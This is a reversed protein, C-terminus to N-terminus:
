NTKHFGFIFQNTFEGNSTKVVSKHDKFFYEQLIFSPRNKVTQLLLKVLNLHEFDIFLTNDGEVLVIKDPINRDERFKKIESKLSSENNLHKHLSRLEAKDIRWQAPSLIVNKYRVRPFSKFIQILPGWNFSLSGTKNQYQLDCLFHYIPLSNHSFNHATTLKPLVETDKNKTSLVVRHGDPISVQLENIGLQNKHTSNSLYPIEYKYIHPRLLVNGTRSEPLHAIEAIIQGESHKEEKEAIENVLKHIDQNAHCFRGLLNAGSSGGVSGLNLITENTNRDRGIETIAYYTNPMNITKDPLQNLDKEDIIFETKNDKAFAMMKEMLFYDLAEWETKATGRKGAPFVLDDLLPSIDGSNSQNYQIGSEVDFLLGLEVNKNEYRNQFNEKFRDLLNKNPNRSFKNLIATTDLLQESIESSIQGGNFDINTDVQFLHKSNYKIPFFDLLTKVEELLNLNDTDVDQDFEKLIQQVQILKDRIEKAVDINKLKSIITGLFDDGCVSPDLESILLQSDILEYIFTKIDDASYDANSCTEALEYIKLGQKATELLETLFEDSKVSISFHVRKGAIYRYEVYRIENQIPYLSSNPSFHLSNKVFDLQSIHASLECLFNMDLRTNGTFSNRDSIQLDKKSGIQGVGCGAFLGFPTCRSSMRSLYKYYANQIAQKQKENKVKGEQYKTLSDFLDPSALYIAKRILPDERFLNFSAEDINMQPLLPTRLVFQSFINSKNPM